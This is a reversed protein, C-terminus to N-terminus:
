LLFHKLTKFYLSSVLYLGFQLCIKHKVLQATYFFFWSIDIFCRWLELDFELNTRIIFWMKWHHTVTLVYFFICLEKGSWIQRNLSKPKQCADNVWSRTGTGSLAAGSGGRHNPEGLRGERKSLVRIAKTLLKHHTGGLTSGSVVPEWLHFRFASLVVVISGCYNQAEQKERM